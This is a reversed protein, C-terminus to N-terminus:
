QSTDLIHQQVAARIAPLEVGLLLHGGHEFRRLEAGPITAAAYEANHFLQLLDDTAHFILTPASVAAIRPGPLEAVNDFAAGASRPSAPHMYAVTREVMERQQPTLSAIVAKSAGMLEMFQAKFATTVLWLPFDYKFVTALGKGKQDAQAQDDVVSPAVGASILTLSSVREPYLVAFLLASPGGQSFGVVAVREIGLHDLLYAYARAQDDWTAGEPVSSGLYGFRSPAVWRFRDDLLFEAILEGQDYGGGGGHVILVTPGTGGKAYEIDGYPSAITTSSGSIRAYARRIDAFYLFAAALMAGALGLLLVRLVRSRM